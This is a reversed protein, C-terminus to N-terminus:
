GRHYIREFRKGYDVNEDSLNLKRVNGYGPYWILAFSYPTVPLGLAPLAKEVIWRAHACAVRTNEEPDTSACSHSKKSYQAWTAPKIQYVGRAHSPSVYYPSAKEMQAVTSLLRPYNLPEHAKAHHSFLTLLSALHLKM